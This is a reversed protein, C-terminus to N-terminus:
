APVKDVLTTRVTINPDRHLTNHIKCHKGMRSLQDAHEPDIDGYFFIDVTFEEIRTPRTATTCTVEVDVGEFGPVNNQLAFAQITGATCSGLAAMILETPRFGRDSSDIVLRADGSSAVFKDTGVDSIKVTTNEM